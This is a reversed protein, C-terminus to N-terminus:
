CNACVASLETVTRRLALFLILVAVLIGADTDSLAEDTKPSTLLM